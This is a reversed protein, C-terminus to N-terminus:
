KGTSGIGGERVNGKISEDEEAEYKVIVGQAIKDGVSIVYDEHSYNVLCLMINGDNKPNEYYSADVIGVGNKLQIHNNTGLSSRAYIKLVRDEPFKSKVDTKFLYSDFIVKGDEVRNGELVVHEKSYFDHGASGTDARKPTKTEGKIEPNKVEEFKIIIFM